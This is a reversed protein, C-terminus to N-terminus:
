STRDPPNGSPRQSLKPPRRAGANTSWKLNCGAGCFGAVCKRGDESAAYYLPALVAWTPPPAPYRIVGVRYEHREVPTKQRCVACNMWRPPQAVM